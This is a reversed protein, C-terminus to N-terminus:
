LDTWIPAYWKAVNYFSIYTLIFQLFPLTLIYRSITWITQLCGLCNIGEKMLANCGCKVLITLCMLPYFTALCSFILFLFSGFQSLLISMYRYEPANFVSDCKECRWGRDIETVKKNCGETPCAPYMCNEQKIHSITAVLKFYAAQCRIAYFLRILWLSYLAIVITGFGNGLKWWYCCFYDQSSKFCQRWCWELWYFDSFYFIECDGVLRRYCSSRCSWPQSSTIRWLWRIFIKWQIRRSKCGQNCDILWRRSSFVRSPSGMFDTPSALWIPWM